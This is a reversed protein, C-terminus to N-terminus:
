EEQRVEADERAGVGREKAAASPPPPAAAAMRPGLGQLVREMMDELRSLQAAQQEARATLDRLAVAQERAEREAGGRLEVLQAAHDRLLAQVPVIVNVIM